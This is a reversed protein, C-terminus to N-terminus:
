ITGPQVRRSYAKPFPKELKCTKTAKKTHLPNRTHKVQDNKM